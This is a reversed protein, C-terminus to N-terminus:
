YLFSLAYLVNGFNDHSNYGRYFHAIAITNALTGIAIFMNYMHIGFM